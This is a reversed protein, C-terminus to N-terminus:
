CFFFLIFGEFGVLEDVVLVNKGVVGLYVCWKFFWVMFVLYYICGFFIVM